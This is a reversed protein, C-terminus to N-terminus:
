GGEFPIYFKEDGRLCTKLFNQGGEGTSWGGVAPNFIVLRKDTGWLIVNYCENDENVYVFNFEFLSRIEFYRELSPEQPFNLPLTSM